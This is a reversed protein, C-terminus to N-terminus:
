LVLSKLIKSTTKIDGEGIILVDYNNTTIKEILKSNKGAIFKKVPANEVVASSSVAVCMNEFSEENADTDPPNPSAEISAVSKDRSASPKSAPPTPSPVAAAKKRSASSRSPPTAPSPTVKM